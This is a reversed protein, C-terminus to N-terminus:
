RARAILTDIAVRAVIEGGDIEGTPEFGLARYFPEPGGRGEVWSTRMTTAGYVAAMEDAVLGLMRRGIGRGQHRADVLFRWLNAETTGAAPLAVMVFGAPVGDATVMRFWPVVPHGDEEGPVLADALSDVVSAVFREQSHHVAVGVAADLNDSAIEVLRVDAPPTTPRHLWDLRDAALIAYCEDDGWKGRSYSAHRLRGEYRFGLREVLRASAVNDPDLTAAIRHVGHDFLRDVVAGVAETALGRGQHEPALTYGVTAVAGGEDLHVGLDGILAGSPDTIALQVWEGPVLATIPPDHALQLAMSTTYPLPWQQYRAVEPDNRYATFVDVDAPVLGRIEVRATRIPLVPPMAM